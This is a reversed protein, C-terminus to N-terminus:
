FGYTTGWLLWTYISYSFLLMNGFGQIMLIVENIIVAGTFVRISNHSDPTAM